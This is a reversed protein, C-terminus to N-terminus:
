RLAIGILVFPHHIHVKLCLLARGSITSVNKLGELNLYYYYYYYYVIFLFLISLDTM